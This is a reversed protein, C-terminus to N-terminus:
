KPIKTMKLSRFSQQKKFQSTWTFWRHDPHNWYSQFLAQSQMKELAGLSKCHIASKDSM